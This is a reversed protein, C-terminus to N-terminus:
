AEEGTGTRADRAVWGTIRAVALATLASLGSMVAVAQLWRIDEIAGIAPEGVIREAAMQSAVAIGLPVAAGFAAGLSQGVITKPQELRGSGIEQESIATTPKRRILSSAAASAAGLAVFSAVHVGLGVTTTSSNVRVPQRRSASILSACALLYSVSGWFSSFTLWRVVDRGNILADDEIERPTIQDHTAM